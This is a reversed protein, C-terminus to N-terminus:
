INLENRISDIFKWFESEISTFINPKTEKKTPTFIKLGGPHCKIFVKEPMMVADGDLHMIGPKEREITLEPARFSIINTDQDIHKLFLLIGLTATDFPTIPLIVTVDILGDQMDANPAIYANNGYQSANGCAVLFTDEAIVGTPTTIKYSEPRYKLYEALASKVYEVPGRKGRKAFESSVQADFGFGCTCFFPRENATCYDFSLINEEIITELAKQPNSPIGLHRALGNGSGMPIIGLATDSNCLASAVENVTGDGGIALVGHYRDKAAQASLDFAHNPRQTFRISIDYEEKSFLKEIMDPLSDKKDKGSIPNILALIRKKYIM